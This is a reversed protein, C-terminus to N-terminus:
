HLLAIASRGHCIAARAVACARYRSDAAVRRAIRSAASASSAVRQRLRATSGRTTHARVRSPASPRDGSRRCPRAPRAPRRRTSRRSRGRKRRGRRASRDQRPAASTTRGSDRTRGAGGPVSGAQMNWGRRARRVGPPKADYSPKRRRRPLSRRRRADPRRADLIRRCREPGGRVADRTEDTLPKTGGSVCRVIASTRSAM